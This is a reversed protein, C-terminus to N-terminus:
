QRTKTRVCACTTILDCLCKADKEVKQLADVIQPFGYLAASGRLKHTLRRLEPTDGQTVANAIEQLRPGLSAVFGGLLDQYLEDDEYISYFVSSQVSAQEEVNM